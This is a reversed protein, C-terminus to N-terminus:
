RHHDRRRPGCASGCCDHRRHGHSSQDRRDHICAGSGVARRLRHERQVAHRLLGDRRDHQDACRWHGRRNATGSGGVMDTSDVAFVEPNDDFKTITPYTPTLPDLIELGPERVPRAVGTVTGYFQGNSVYTEASETLNGQTGETATLSPAVTVRMSQYRMLQFPGGTPSPFTTTLSIAAPLPNSASLVSYGTVRDLETGALTVGSPYLSVTGSVQVETGVTATAPVLGTGAHVFIGEPTTPDSDVSNDRTQIYYGNSLVGTVIGSTQVVQGVYPSAAPATTGTGMSGQITHIPVFTVPLTTTLNASGTGSRTQSDTVSFNLKYIGSAQSAPVSYNYSYTGDGSTVDGHSGDDYLPQTASGGIASLDVTAALGTSAPSTGAKVVATLLM